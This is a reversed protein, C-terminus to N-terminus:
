RRPYMADALQRQKDDWGAQYAGRLAAHAFKVADAKSGVPGGILNAIDNVLNLAERETPYNTM